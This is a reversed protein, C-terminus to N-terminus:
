NETLTNNENILQVEGNLQQAGCQCNFFKPLFFIVLVQLLCHMWSNAETITLMPHAILSKNKNQEGKM